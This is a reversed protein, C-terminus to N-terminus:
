LSLTTLVSLFVSFIGGAEVREELLLLSCDLKLSTWSCREASRQLPQLADRSTEPEWQDLSVATIATSATAECNLVRHHDVRRSDLEM